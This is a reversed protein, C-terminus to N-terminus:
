LETRAMSMGPNGNPELGILMRYQDTHKKYQFLSRDNWNLFAALIPIVTQFDKAMHLSTRCQPATRRYQCLYTLCLRFKLKFPKLNLPKGLYLKHRFIGTTPILINRPGKFKSQPNKSDYENLLVDGNERQTSTALMKSLLISAYFSRSKPSPSTMPEVAAPAVWQIHRQGSAVALRM